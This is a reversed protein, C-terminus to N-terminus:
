VLAAFGDADHFDPTDAPHRLAWYALRGEADEIVAALALRAPADGVISGIELAVHVRWPADGSHRTLAIVPAALAELPRMGSRYAEFAYAAWEGSPSFNLEVYPAGVPSAARESASAPWQGQPALFAELCTHRWLGDVRQPPAPRPLRVLRSDGEVTYTLDLLGARRKVRVEISRVAECPTAPHPALYFARRAAAPAPATRSGM